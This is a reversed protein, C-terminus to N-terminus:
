RTGGPAAAGAPGPPAPANQPNSPIAGSRAETAPINQTSPVSEGSRLTNFAGTNAPAGAEPNRASSGPVETETSVPAEGSVPPETSVPANPAPVTGTAALQLARVYAVVAWRDNVDQIRSGYGYMIGYGNVLTDYIHGDETRRLRDTQFSAPLKSWYGLGRQSIFGNGNGTQGHCPSCFANFREQGRLLMDKPSTFSQVARLPINRILRGRADKGTYYVVDDTLIRGRAVTHAVKPRSGQRDNFFDSEEYPKIKPQRWMDIHCGSVAVTALFALTLGALLRRREPSRTNSQNTQVQM